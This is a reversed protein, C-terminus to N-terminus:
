NNTDYFPPADSVSLNSKLRKMVSGPSFFCCMGCTVFVLGLFQQYLRGLPEASAPVLAPHSSGANKSAVFILSM